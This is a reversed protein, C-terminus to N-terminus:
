SGYKKQFNEQTCEIEGTKTTNRGEAIAPIEDLFRWKWRRHIIIKTLTLKHTIQVCENKNEMRHM